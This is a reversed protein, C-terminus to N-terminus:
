EFGIAEQYTKWKRIFRSRDRQNAEGRPRTANEHHIVQGCYILQVAKGVRCAKLCLDVDQAEAEYSEDFYDCSVFQSSKMM